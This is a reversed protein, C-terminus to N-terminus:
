KKYTYFLWPKKNVPLSDYLSQAQHNDTATVWQLRVAGNNLAFDLCHNILAKGIGMGRYAPLTFLDNLVGVKAVLTSSYTFYVTAFGVVVGDKRHLFQCGFPNDIGFQGFFHRNKQDDISAMQYFE